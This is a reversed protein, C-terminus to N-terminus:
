AFTLSTALLLLSFEERIFEDVSQLPDSGPMFTQFRSYFSPSAFFRRFVPELTRPATHLKVQDRFQLMVVLVLYFERLFNPNALVLDIAHVAIFLPRRTFNDTMYSRAAQYEMMTTDKCQSAYLKCRDILKKDLVFLCHRLESLIARRLVPNFVLDQLPHEM